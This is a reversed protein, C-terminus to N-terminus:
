AEPHKRLKRSPHERPVQALTVAAVVAGGAASVAEIAARLTAGTTMVDDVLVVTRGQVLSQDAYMAATLNGAREARSLGRQDRVSRVLWLGDDSVVHAASSFLLGPLAFGRRRRAQASSPLALWLASRTQPLVALVGSLRAAVARLLPLAARADQDKVARVMARVRGREDSIGVVPVAQVGDDVWRVAHPADAWGLCAACCLRGARGCGVCHAPMLLDLLSSCLAALAAPAAPAFRRSRKMDGM